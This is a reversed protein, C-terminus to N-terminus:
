SSITKAFVTKIRVCYALLERGPLQENKIVPGHFQCADVVVDVRQGALGPLDIFLTKREGLPARQGFVEAREVIRREM